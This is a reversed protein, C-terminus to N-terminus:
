EDANAQRILHMLFEATPYVQLPPAMQAVLEGQPNVVSVSATHVVQYQSDNAKDIRYFGNLSGVLSDIQSAEGTVGINVPHFNALYDKMVAKDRAPDVAVFITDPLNEPRFRLGLEARVAELKIMTLPCIDPCSTFGLFLLSWRGQLNKETFLQGTHDTLSFPKVPKPEDLRNFEPEGAITLQCVLLLVLSRQVVHLGFWHRM